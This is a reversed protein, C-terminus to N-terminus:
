EKVYGLTRVTAWQFPDKPDKRFLTKFKQIGTREKQLDRPFRIRYMLVNWALNEDANKFNPDAGYISRFTQRVRTLQQLEITRNRFLPIVGRTMRELDGPHIVTTGMVQVADRVVARREGSGLAVTAPSIGYTIFNALDTADKELVAVKLEKMDQKVLLLNRKESALDRPKETVRVLSMVDSPNLINEITGQVPKQEEPPIIAVLPVSNSPESLLPIPPLPVLPIGIGSGIGGGGADDNDVIGVSVSNISLASTYGIGSSTALHTITSTKAIEFVQDNAATVTVTQPTNWNSTTFSLVSASLAVQDDAPTLTVTVTSTPATMLVITYTDTAGGETVSAFSKSLTIGATDNDTITYLTSTNSGIIANIPSSLLIGITENPEDIQDDVVVLSITTSTQGAAITATGTSLTYDTGAGTATTSATIISYTTTVNEFHVANLLIRISTATVSELGSGTSSQFSLYRPTTDVVFAISGSNAIVYSSAAASSDITKVQWYYSGNSLTSADQGSVYSGSGAAQGVQFTRTDQAALVSTYDILPSSFNATDDIQIQYKVIDAVDPDSLAFSFIPTSTGTTSGTVLASPGLSGPVNPAVNTQLQYITGASGVGPTGYGGVSGGATSSTGNFTLTQYLVAIRGGGGGGGYGAGNGGRAYITGSGAFTGSRLYVSGGSPGGSGNSFPSQTGGDALLSGSNTFTGATVLYIIGGGPIGAEASGGTWGAGGSGFLSPETLSGYTTVQQSGLVYGGTGGTGGHAAGGFADKGYGATTITCVNGATPGYGGGATAGYACGKTSANISSNSDVAISTLVTSSVSSWITSSVMSFAVASPINLVGGHRSATGANVPGYYRFQTLALASSVNWTSLAGAKALIFTSSNTGSSWTTATLAFADTNTFSWMTGTANLTTPSFVVSSIAAACTFVSGADTFTTASITLTTQAECGLAAGAEITYSTRTYDQNNAFLFGSSVYLNGAGDDTRRDLIFTTGNQGDEPSYTTGGKNGGTATMSSRSLSTLTDYYVAIRGGGGGAGFVTGNGGNAAISGGGTLTVTRIYVSGGSGGGSGNGDPVSGGNSGTSLISGNVTLTGSVTLVVVGGGYGPLSGAYSSGGSGLLTPATSSGYVTTQRSGGLGVGAGGYGGHAGGGLTTHAYGSTAAACVGTTTNPGHGGSTTAIAGCGKGTTDIKGGTDITINRATIQVGFPDTAAHTIVGTNQIVVDDLTGLIMQSSSGMTMTAGANITVTGTGLADNLDVTGIWTTSVNANITIDTCVGGGLGLGSNVTAQTIVTDTTVTCNVAFAQPM